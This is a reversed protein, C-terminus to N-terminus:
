CVNVRFGSEWVLARTDPDPIRALERAQAENRPPTSVNTDLETVIISARIMQDARARNWGWRERCYEEFSGHTERYLRGDRIALLATGVEVFTGLGREWRSFLRYWRQCTHRYAM